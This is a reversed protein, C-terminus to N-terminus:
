LLTGQNIYAFVKEGIQDNVADCGNARMRAKKVATKLRDLRVLIQSKASPTLKSSKVETEVNGVVVDENVKEVQAPHKDTAEYLVVPKLVKKTRLRTDIFRYIGEGEEYAQVWSVGPELTPIANYFDMLKGLEKELALLATAPVDHLFTTGDPMVIDAKALTNSKEKQFFVDFYEALSESVYNLKSQVTDVMEVQGEIVSSEGEAVPKFTVRKSTFHADKSAFTKTGETLIKNARGRRDEEVALIEHLKGSM